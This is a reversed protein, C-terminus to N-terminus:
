VDGLLVAHFPPPHPRILTSQKLIFSHREELPLMFRVRPGTSRLTKEGRFGRYKMRLMEDGVHSAVEGSKEKKRRGLVYAEREGALYCRVCVSSVWSPGSSLPYWPRHRHCALYGGLHRQYDDVAM